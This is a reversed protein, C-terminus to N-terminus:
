QVVTPCRAPNNALWDGGLLLLPPLLALTRLLMTARVLDAGGRLADRPERPCRNLQCSLTRGEELSWHLSSPPDTGSRATAWVRGEAAGGSCCCLRKERKEGPAGTWLWLPALVLRLARGGRKPLPASSAAPSAAARTDSLDSGGRAPLAVSRAALHRAAQGGRFGPLGAHLVPWDRQLHTSPHIPGKASATRAPTRGLSMAVAAAFPLSRHSLMSPSKNGDGELM